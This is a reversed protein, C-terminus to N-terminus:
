GMGGEWSGTTIGVRLTGPSTSLDSPCRGGEEGSMRRQTDRDERPRRRVVAAKPGVRTWDSRLNM